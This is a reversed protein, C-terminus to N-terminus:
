DDYITFVLTTQYDDAPILVSINKVKFDVTIGTWSGAGKIFQSPTNNVTVWNSGSNINGWISRKQGNSSKRIQISLEQNWLVDNRLVNVKWRFYSFYNDWFNGSSINLYGSTNSTIDQSFDDGAENLEFSSYPFSPGGSTTVTLPQAFGNVSVLFFVIYLYILPRM